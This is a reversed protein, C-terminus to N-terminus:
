IKPVRWRIKYLKNEQKRTKQISVQHTQVKQLATM